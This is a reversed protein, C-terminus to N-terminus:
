ITVGFFKAITTLSGITGIAGQILPIIKKGKESDKKDIAEKLQQTMFEITDRKNEDQIKKVETLLEEYAKDIEQKETITVKNFQNHDGMVNVNDGNVSVDGINRHDNM